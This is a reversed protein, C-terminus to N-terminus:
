GHIITGSLDVDGVKEEWFDTAGEAEEVAESAAILETRRV